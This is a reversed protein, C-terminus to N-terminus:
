KGQYARFLFTVIQARTCSNDPGFLGDGIGNTVGNEVAWAVANAYYSDTLVDSFEAKSDVLKGIARFLFTVSQARTCTADPSFKGDGTGTTIGNEVAWAVAKAYYADTSVDAFSSMAKPEPSGAARWLFTVIQARTCPQNPGFLGDGIGGTIGKKQAWKVAEYYYADTSVDRFPSIKVEETFTAKVEVRGAPMIFTFRGDGKDTLALEKGDKDLVKLSDLEYGADPKVTVTVRDGQSANKPSVSVSGNETKDPIGVAYSPDSSDRDSSSSGGDRSWNATVTVSGEPMIFTTEEANPDDFVVNSGSTWGNFTYGSRSGARVTVVRGAAYSGAGSNQADYSGNVTVAYRTQRTILALQQASENGASDKACLTLIGSNTDLTGPVTFRGKSNAYIKETGGYLIESGADATGTVTYEGTDRDAFFVPDSLTLVPPTEDRSVLLFVSTVDMGQKGDIKLMLSGTFNPIAFTNSATEDPVINTGTDMRTVTISDADACDVTLTGPDEGVYAHYVGNEDATIATGNVALTMDLATYKPLFVGSNDSLTEESYYKATLAKQASTGGSGATSGEVGEAAGTEEGETSGTETSETFYPEEKYARVGVKYTENPSLNKSNKTEEGGVTLAMNISTTEKDLDYGFGTDIWKGGNKQYITVAYGAADDVKDWKATMVENGALELTVTQPATPENTNTYTITQGFQKSDIAALANVTKSAGNETVEVSKETMLFSTVYYSGTPAHTGSPPIKVSIKQTDAVIQEDILYDAGGEEEALYTRLTYTTDDEAYKIKGSVEGSSDLNLELKEFPTVTVGKSKDTVLTLSGTNVEYTGGNKLRLLVVRYEKGDENNTILATGANIEAAPDIKGIEEESAGEKKVWNIQISDTEGQKTVNLAQKVADEDVDEDFALLIYPTEDTSARVDITKSNEGSGNTLVVPELATLMLAEEGDELSVAQVVPTVGHDEWKWEPLKKILKGELDWGKGKEFDTKIINPLIVWARVDYLWNTSQAMAGLYVDINNFADKMGESVSVNSIPFETQGGIILQIDTQSLKAGRLCPIFFNSPIQLIGQVKGNAGIGLHLYNQGDKTGTGGFAGLEISSDLVIVDLETSPLNLELAESGVLYVGKYPTGNYTREQGNLKLAYGFSDIISLKAGVIGVDSATLSIESPGIVVDGTGEILHLYTGTLTGRLKIPPIGRYDGNVTKALDMFGAGGGNLQGVPIPPILPIGPSAKVYFYLTNPLLSGDKKSRTLELEAKTEFLDFVNLELEFAYLEDDKFTNVEGKVDALELAMMKATNFSGTAHVGNVKFENGKLGYGLKEMKFEAGEFITQFGIEGSFVLNGAADAAANELKVTAYPIDVYVIADNKAPEIAFEFGKKTLSIGLASGEGTKPQYFKFTPASLNVGSQEVTGNKHIILKGGSNKDWTATVSPSLLAAGGTFTFDEGNKSEYDGNILAVPDKKYQRKLASLAADDAVYEVTVGGGDPFVALRKANISINVKDPNTPAPDTGKLLGRFGWLFHLPVISYDSRDGFYYGIEDGCEVRTDGPRSAPTVSIWEPLYAKITGKKYYQSLGVFPNAWNYGDTYVETIYNSCWDGGPTYDQHTNLNELKSTIVSNESSLVKETTHDYVTRSLKLAPSDAANRHGMAAFGSLTYGWRPGGEIGLSGNSDASTIKIADVSTLVGWAGSGSEGLQVIEYYVTTTGTVTKGSVTATLDYEVKIANATGNPTKKVFSASKLSLTAPHTIEKKNYGIGNDYTIFECYPKQQGPSDSAATPATTLIGTQRNLTVRIYDNQLVLSNNNTSTQVNTSGPSIIDGVYALAQSPLVGLLLCLTLLLSLIKKM